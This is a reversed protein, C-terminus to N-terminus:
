RLPLAVPYEGMKNGAFYLGSSRFLEDLKRIAAEPSYETVIHSIDDLLFEDVASANLLAIPDSSFRTSHTEEKFPTVAVREGNIEILSLGRVGDM